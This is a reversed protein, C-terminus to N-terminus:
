IGEVTFLDGRSARQRLAILPQYEPSAYWAKVAAASPFELIVVRKPTFSGELQASAGGRALFRGGAATLAPSPLKAYAALKESDKVARYTAVWYAKPM